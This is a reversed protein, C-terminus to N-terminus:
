HREGNQIRRLGFTALREVSEEVAADLNDRTLVVIAAANEERIKAVWTDGSEAVSAILPVPRKLLQEIMGRFTPSTAQMPGIEDLVILEAGSAGLLRPCAVHDLFETTVGLRRRGDPLLTGFRPSGGLDPSALLGEEGSLLRVSFGARKGDIRREVSFFGAQREPPFQSAVRRVATTKGIGPPGTFLIQVTTM